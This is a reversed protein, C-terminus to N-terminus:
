GENKVEPVTYPALEEVLHAFAPLLACKNIMSMGLQKSYPFVGALVGKYALLLERRALSRTIAFHESFAVSWVEEDVLRKRAAWPTPYEQEGTLMIWLLDRISPRSARIGVPANTTNGVVGECSISKQYRRAYSGRSVWCSGLPTPVNVNKPEFLIPILEVGQGDGKYLLGRRNRLVLDPPDDIDDGAEFSVASLVPSPYQMDEWTARVITGEFWMRADSIEMHEFLM